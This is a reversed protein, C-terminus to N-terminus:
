GWRKLFAEDLSEKYKKSEEIMEKHAYAILGGVGILIMGLM